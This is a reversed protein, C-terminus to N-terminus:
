FPGSTVIESGARTSLAQWVGPRPLNVWWGLTSETAGAPFGTGPDYPWTEIAESIFRASGDAMLANLGGPHLSTAAIAHNSGTPYIGVRKFMNPPFM